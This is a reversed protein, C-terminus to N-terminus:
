ISCARTSATTPLRRPFAGGVYLKYTKKVPLRAAAAGRQADRAPEHAEPEVEVGPREAISARQDNM